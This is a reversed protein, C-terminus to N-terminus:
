VHARGIKAHITGNEEAIPVFESAVAAPGRGPYWRVLAEVGRIRGDDLAVVPQYAVGIEGLDVARRLWQDLRLRELVEDSLARDYVAYGNHGRRKARYMAIDSARLLDRVAAASRAVAVGVSAGVVLSEGSVAFPEVLADLVTEAVSSARVEDHDLLLVAFEDGGLRALADVSPLAARLRAGVEILLDDGAAHGFADNVDKFADLDVFLVAVAGLDEGIRDAAQAVLGDFMARNPLGTLADHTAAHALDQEYEYRETIDQSVVLVSIVEGSNGFEPTVSVERRTRRTGDLGSDEVRHPEGSEIAACVAAVIPNTVERDTTPPAALVAGVASLDLPAELALRNATLLRGKRDFRHVALPLHDVLREFRAESHQLADVTHALDAEAVALSHGASRRATVQAFLTAVAKLVTVDETTWPVAGTISEFGIVGVLAGSRVLPVELIATIGEAMLYERDEAWDDPLAAVDRIENVELRSLREQERPADAYPRAQEFEFTPAIGPACWEHTMWTRQSEDDFDLVFARDVGVFSGIAALADDIARDFDAEDLDTFRRFVGELVEEFDLLRQLADVAPRAETEPLGTPGAVVRPYRCKM